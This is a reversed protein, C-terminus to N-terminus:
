RARRPDTVLPLFVTDVIDVIVEDPIPALNMILEHRMLAYPLDLVRPPVPAVVEGRDVARQVITVMLPTSEGLLQARFQAPTTQTEGFYAGLIVSFLAPISDAYRRGFGRLLGLTDGRLSGTDPIEASAGYLRHRLVAVVLAEKDPWRRYLAAKGTQAREAIAEFTFGPYGSEILQDWGAELIAGELAAGRRRTQAM